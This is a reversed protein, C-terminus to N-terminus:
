PWLEVRQGIDWAQVTETFEALTFLGLCPGAGPAPRRGSAFRRALIVAPVTPIYPGNGSGASLTWRLALPEGDHGVGELSVAMAGADSGMGELWRSMRTIAASYRSWNDVLRARTAWSMLWLGLHLLPLELGAHFVVDSVGGYREPFLALDPIDCSALWRRGIGPGFDQRRLDQWGYVTRWRGAEWRSFPRGTYSLIARVTAEGREARNGPAIAHRITHIQSFRPLHEDVVASSLGPVSSAGSVLAVGAARAAEDLVTFCTVFRRDDALDLYDVGAQICAEAVGYDQGQFPGSTHIVLHAGSSRIREALASDRIDVAMASAGALQAALDRAREASRGAIIVRIGAASLSASIRKGFNGYGGLVLAVYAAPRDSDPTM